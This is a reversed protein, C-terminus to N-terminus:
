IFPPSYCYSLQRWLLKLNKLCCPLCCASTRYLSELCFMFYHDHKTYLHDLNDLVLSTSMGFLNPCLSVLTFSFWFHPFWEYLIMYLSGCTLIVFVYHLFVIPPLEYLLMLSWLGNIVLYMLTLPAMLFWMLCHKFWDYSLSSNHPLLKYFRDEIPSFKCDIHMGGKFAYITGFSYNIKQM